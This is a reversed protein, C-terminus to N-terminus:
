MNAAHHLQNAIVQRDATTPTRSYVVQRWDRVDFPSEDIRQNLIVIPKGLAQAYGLEWMVNGNVDTIDAIVVDASRLADTIQRSIQGPMVIDDARYVHLSEDTERAVERLMDYVGQSWDANFPMIVFAERSRPEIATSRSAARAANALIEAQRHLYEDLTDVEGMLRVVGTNLSYRWDSEGSSGGGLPNPYESGLLQASRVLLGRDDGVRQLLRSDENSLQLPDDEDGFYLEGARIVIQLAVDLVPRAAPLFRLFRMPVQVIAPLFNRQEGVLQPMASLAAAVDIDLRAQDLRRQARELAPWEGREAFATWAFDVLARHEEFWRRDLEGVAADEM